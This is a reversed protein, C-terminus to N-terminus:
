RIYYPLKYSGTAFKRLSDNGICWSMYRGSIVFVNNNVKEIRTIQNYSSDNVTTTLSKLQNSEIALSFQKFSHNETLSDPSTIEGKELNEINEPLVIYFSTQYLLKYEHVLTGKIKRIYSFTDTYELYNSNYIYVRNNSTDIVSMDIFYNLTYKNDSEKKCSYLFFGICIIFLSIRM